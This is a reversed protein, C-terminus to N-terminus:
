HHKKKKCKKAAAARKHKKKCKKKSPAPATPLAPTPAPGTSTPPVPADAINVRFGGIGDLYEDNTWPFVGDGDRVDREVFYGSPDTSLANNALVGADPDNLDTAFAGGPSGFRILLGGGSFNFPATATFTLEYDGFTTNGRPNAPVQTNPVIQTFPGSNQDGGNTTAPAMAIQLQVDVDNQASLDFSVKDGTKLDFAPVNKYIWVMYADWTESEGFPSTYPTMTPSTPTVTVTSAAGASGIMAQGGALAVATAVLAIFGRSRDRSV